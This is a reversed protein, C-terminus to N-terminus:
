MPPAFPSSGKKLTSHCIQQIQNKQFPKLIFDENKMSKEKKQVMLVVRVGSMAWEDKNDGFLAHDVFVLQPHEKHMIALGVSKDKAFFLEGGQDVIPHLIEELQDQKVQNQEVILIKNRM